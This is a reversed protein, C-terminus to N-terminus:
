GSTWPRFVQSTTVNFGCSDWVFSMTQQGSQNQEPRLKGLSCTFGGAQFPGKGSVGERVWHLAVELQVPNVARLLWERSGRHNGVWLTEGTSRQHENEGPYPSEKCVTFTFTNTVWDHGVRHSGMSQLGGPEETWPIRWALISSHTAMEEELPDERSLSRVWMEQIAPQNKVTQAVRVCQGEEFSQTM